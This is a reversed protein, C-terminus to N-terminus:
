DLSFRKPKKGRRTSFGVRPKAKSSLLFYYDRPVYAFIRAPPASDRQLESGAPPWYKKSRPITSPKLTSATDLLLVSDRYLGVARREEFLGYGRMEERWIGM